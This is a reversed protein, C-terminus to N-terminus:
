VKLTISREIEESIFEGNAYAIDEFSIAIFEM